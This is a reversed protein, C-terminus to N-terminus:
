LIHAQHQRVPQQFLWTTSVQGDFDNPKKCFFRTTFSKKLVRSVDSCLRPFPHPSSAPPLGDGEGDLDSRAAGTAQLSKNPMLKATRQAMSVIGLVYFDV